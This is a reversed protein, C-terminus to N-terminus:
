RPTGATRPALRMGRVRDRGRRLAPAAGGAYRLGACRLATRPSVRAVTLLSRPTIQAAAWTVLEAAAPDTSGVRSATSIINAYVCWHDLLVLAPSSADYRGSALAADRIADRVTLLNSLDVASSTTISGPRLVHTYVVDPVLRVTGSGQLAALFGACDSRSTMTTPFADAPIVARRILKNWLYGLMRGRVMLDVVDAAPHRSDEDLGDVVRATAAPAGARVAQARGIVVDVDPGAAAALTRLATVPWRDDSDVFWVFRGRTHQLATNRAAAVGGNHPLALVQHRPSTGLTRRAIEATGDTSADDVVILEFDTFDQALAQEITAAIRDADDHATLVISVTPDGTSTGGAPAAAPDAARGDSSM